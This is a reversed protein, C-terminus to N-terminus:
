DQGREREQSINRSIIGELLRSDGQFSKESAKIWSEGKLKAVNLEYGAARSLQEAYARITRGNGDLFPHAANLEGIINALAKAFKKPEMKALETFNAAGTIKDTEQGIYQPQCFRSTGKALPVDRYQGAWAYVDQFLHAHIERLHKASFDGQPLSDMRAAVVLGEFRALEEPNTLGPKNKWITTGQIFEATSTKYKTM